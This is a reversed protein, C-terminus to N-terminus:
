KRKRKVTSKKKSKVKSNAIRVAKGEDGTDRLIANAIRAAKKAGVPSLKKNHKSRFSSATWPAM